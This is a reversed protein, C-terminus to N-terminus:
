RLGEARREKRGGATSGTTEPGFPPDLVTSANGAGGAGDVLRAPFSELSSFGHNGGRACTNHHSVASHMNVPRAPTASAPAVVKTIPEIEGVSPRALHPSAEHLFALSGGEGDFEKTRWPGRGARVVARGMDTGLIEIAYANLGLHFKVVATRVHIDSQSVQSSILLIQIIEMGTETTAQGGNSIVNLLAGARHTYTTDSVFCERINVDVHHTRPLTSLRNIHSCTIQRHEKRPEVILLRFFISLHRFEPRKFSLLVSRRACLTRPSLLREECRLSPSPM